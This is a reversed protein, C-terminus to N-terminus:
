SYIRPVPQKTKQEEGSVEVGLCVCSSLSHPERDTITITINQDIHAVSSHQPSIRLSFPM